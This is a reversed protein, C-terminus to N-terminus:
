PLVCVIKPAGPTMLLAPRPAKPTDQGGSYPRQGRAPAHQKGHESSEEREREREREGRGGGEREDRDEGRVRGGGWDEFDEGAHLLEALVVLECGRCDLEGVDEAVDVEQVLNRCVTLWYDARLNTYLVSTSNRGKREREESM